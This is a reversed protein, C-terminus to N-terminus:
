ILNMLFLVFGPKVVRKFGLFDIIYKAKFHKLKPPVGRIEQLLKCDSVDIAHLNHFEKICEPLFTIDSEQLWLYSVHALQTFGTSLFDDNLNCSLAM